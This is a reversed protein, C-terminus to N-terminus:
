RSRRCCQDAWLCTECGLPARGPMPRAHDIAAAATFAIVAPALWWVSAVAFVAFVAGLAAAAAVALTTLNDNM